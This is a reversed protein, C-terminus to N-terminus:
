GYVCGCHDAVDDDEATGRVRLEGFVDAGVESDGRGVDLQLLEGVALSPDLNAVTDAVLIDVNHLRAAALDIVVEHLQEDSQACALSCACSSDGCDQRQERVRALAVQRVVLDTRWESSHGGLDVSLCVVCEVRPRRARIGAARLALTDAVAITGVRQRPLEVAKRQLLAGTGRALVGQLTNLRVLRVILCRASSCHCAVRRRNLWGGRRLHSNLLSVLHPNSLGTSENGVEESTSACVVDDCHVQVVRLVLAEEVNRDVVEVTPVHQFLVNLLVDDGFMTSGVIAHDDAGVGTACLACGVNCIGEACVKREDVLYVWSNVFDM